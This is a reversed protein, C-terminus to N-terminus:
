LVSKVGERIRDVNFRIGPCTKYDAYENHPWILEETCPTSRCLGAILNIGVAYMADPVNHVDYNGVFCIGISKRNMGNQRTHAGRTGLPRGTFIQYQNEVLEIGFHYGIDTWGLDVTHYKRIANWSVTKSDKTLSHHLITYWRNDKPIFKYNWM